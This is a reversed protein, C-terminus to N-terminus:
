LWPTPRAKRFLYHINTVYVQFTTRSLNAKVHSFTKNTVVAVQNTVTTVRWCDNEHVVRWDKNKLDM